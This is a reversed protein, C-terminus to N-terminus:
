LEIEEMGIFEMNEFQFCLIYPMKDVISWFGDYRFDPNFYNIITSLATGHSGVVVNRGLNNKLVDNLAAVNREQVERLCEGCELKFDFDDWQKRSFTKFDDVWVTDVKRERFGEVINIEVGIVQALDKVTDYARKYPSSYIASINKDKLRIKLEKGKDHDMVSVILPKYKRTQRELLDISNAASLGVVNINLNDCVELAQTGISGTSGLIVLNRTM